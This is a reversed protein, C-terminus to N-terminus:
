PPKSLSNLILLWGNITESSFHSGHHTRHPLGDSHSLPLLLPSLSLSFFFVQFTHSLFLHSFIYIYKKKKKVITLLESYNFAM